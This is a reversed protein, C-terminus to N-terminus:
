HSTHKGAACPTSNTWPQSGSSSAQNPALLAAPLPAWGWVSPTVSVPSTWWSSWQPSRQREYPAVPRRSAMTQYQFTFSLYVTKRAMLGCWWILIHLVRVPFIMMKMGPWEAAETARRWRPRAAVVWPSRELGRQERSLQKPCHEILLVSCLSNKSHTTEANFHSKEGNEFFFFSSLNLFHSVCTVTLRCWLGSALTGRKRSQFSSSLHRKDQLLHLPASSPSHTAFGRSTNGSSRWWRRAWRRM